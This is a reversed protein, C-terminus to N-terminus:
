LGSTRAACNRTTAALPRRLSTVPKDRNQDMQPRKEKRARVRSRAPKRGGPRVHRCGHRCRPPRREWYRTQVAPIGLARLFPPSPDPAPHPGASGDWREEQTTVSGGCKRLNGSRRRCRHLSPAGVVGSPLQQAGPKPKRLDSLFVPINSNWMHADVGGHQHTLDSEGHLSHHERSFQNGKEWFEPGALQRFRRSTGSPASVPDEPIQDLTM